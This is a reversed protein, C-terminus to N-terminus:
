LSQLKPSKAYIQLLYTVAIHIFNVTAVPSSILPSLPILTMLTIRPSQHSQTGQSSDPEDNIIFKTLYRIILPPKRIKTPQLASLSTEVSLDDM